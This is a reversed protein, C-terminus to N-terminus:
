RVVSALLGESSFHHIQPGSLVLYRAPVQAQQEQRLADPKSIWAQAKTGRVFMKKWM